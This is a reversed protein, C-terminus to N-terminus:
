LGFHLSTLCCASFNDAIIAALKEEDLHLSKCVLKCAERVTAGKQDQVEILDIFIRKSIGKGFFCFLKTGPM